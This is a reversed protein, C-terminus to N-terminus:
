VGKDPDVGFLGGLQAMVGAKSLLDVFQGTDMSARVEALGDLLEQETGGAQILRVLPDFVPDLAPKLYQRSILEETTLSILDDRRGQESALIMSAQKEDDAEQRGPGAPAAILLDDDDGPEKLNLRNRLDDVRVPAGHKLLLSIGTFLDSLPVEDEVVFRVLPYADQPGYNFDIAPRILQEAITYALQAADADAIDDRVGDHVKSSAYGGGKIVDTTGTQGLVVKSVQQDLWNAQREYLEIQGSISNEVFEIMMSDPILAAMDSGLRRLARMATAKDKESASQGYKGIRLPHGYTEAFVVWNKLDYTKFLYMWAVARILGARVPFGSKAKPLHVVFKGPQLPKNGETDRLLLTEGDVPDFVFFRPDRWQLRDPMWRVKGDPGKAKMNWIIECVAYGKSIGDLLDFFEDRIRPRNLIARALEANRTDAPSDSVADVIVQRTQIARKRTGLVAQFHADKEEIAEALELLATADGAEAGKMLQALRQPTLGEEPHASIVQRVSGVAPAAIEEELVERMLPLGHKDVLAM